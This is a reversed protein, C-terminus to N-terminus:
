KLLKLLEQQGKVMNDLKLNIEKIDEKYQKGETEVVSIRQGNTVQTDSIKGIQTSTIGYIALAFSAGIGAAWM